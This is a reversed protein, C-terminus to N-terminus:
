RFWSRVRSLLTEAPKQGGDAEKIAVYIPTAVLLGSEAHLPRALFEYEESQQPVANLAIGMAERYSQYVLRSHQKSPNDEIRNNLFKLTYYYGTHDTIEKSASNGIVAERSGILALQTGKADGGFFAIGSAYDHILGFRMRLSGSLYPKTSELTGVQGNSHLFAALVEVRHSLDTPDDRGETKLKAGIFPSKFELEASWKKFFSSPIQPYLMDVKTSSIYIYYKM